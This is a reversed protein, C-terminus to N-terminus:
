PKDLEFEHISESNKIDGANSTNSKDTNIKSIKSQKMNENLFLGVLARLVQNSVYFHNPASNPSMKELEELTNILPVLDSHLLTSSVMRFFLLSQERSDGKKVGLAAGASNM